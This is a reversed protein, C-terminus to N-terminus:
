NTGIVIAYVMFLIVGILLFVNGIKVWLRYKMSNKKYTDIDQRDM